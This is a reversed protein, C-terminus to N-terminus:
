CHPSASVLHTPNRRPDLLSRGLQLSPNRHKLPGFPAPRLDGGGDDDREIAVVFTSGLGARSYTTVFPGLRQASELGWFPVPTILADKRHAQLNWRSGLLQLTHAETGLLRRM